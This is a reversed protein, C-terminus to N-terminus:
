ANSNFKSFLDPGKWTSQRLFEFDGEEGFTSRKFNSQTKLDSLYFDSINYQHHIKQKKNEIATLRGTQQSSSVGRRNHFGDSSDKHSGMTISSKLDNRLINRGNEKFSAQM